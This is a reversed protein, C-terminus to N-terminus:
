RAKGATAAPAAAVEAYADVPLTVIFKTGQGPKSDVDIRGRHREVIGKSIALGLGVGHGREKTTFFPEFLNPLIDAPIGVGDDQVELQVSGIQPVMRSRVWLNGGHPMAEIANIMLALLLQEIQAPDCQVQPLDEALQRQLQVNSLETQHQVLRLCRDVVQNLDAWQLNMPASRSFSLLNRVIDGCRRSESEILELSSRVEDRRQADWRERDLWKRLLKAYTLIGALPNNIEHAVTAALKGISAMKESQMVQEHAHKLERTKEEVRAELTQAWADTEERAERLQRSMQNFSLALEGLEDRSVIDLQYGLQGHALRETGATLKKVPIHVVRWVFIGSLVAILAMAVLTYVLMRLSSERLNTDARALSVNTDLVGLVQQDAPHAHCEATSCSPQNEIPTIIGLVRHGNPKFIRFRDPRNLKTLPRAQAHCAYCAEARKDVYTNVEAPDSSFSIRGEQNFIRIRVVGPENAMTDISRYLAERDNRLMHYTTARKVVDSMREASLLAAEELNQRHLRINLYGLLAFIVVMGALLLAILRASLTNGLRQWRM